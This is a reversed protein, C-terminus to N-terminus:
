LPWNRQRLSDRRYLSPRSTNLIEFEHWFRPLQAGVRLKRGYAMSIVRDDFEMEMGPIRCKCSQDLGLLRCECEWESRPYKRGVLGQTLIGRQQDHWTQSRHLQRMNMYKSFCEEWLRTDNAQDQLDNETPFHSLTGSSPYLRMNDLFVWARQRYINRLLDSSASIRPRFQEYM